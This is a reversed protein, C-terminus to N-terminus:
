CEDTISMSWLGEQNEPLFTYTTGPISTYDSLFLQTPRAGGGGQQAPYLNRSLGPNLALVDQESAGVTLGNEDSAIGLIEYPHISGDREDISGATLGWRDFTDGYHILTLEGWRVVNAACYGAIGPPIPIVETPDGIAPKLRAQAETIPTGFPISDVVAGADDLVDLGQRTVIIKGRITAPDVDSGVPQTFQQETEIDFVIFQNVEVTANVVVVTAPNWQQWTQGVLTVQGSDTAVPLQSPLPAPETLPNGCSCRVRPVGFNDVLVATGAQLVSQRPTAVGNAFGHNTVRTDTRLLVPTLGAVYDRIGDPSIGLAGAWAAAKDPNEDLFTVLAAADCATNDQTGGYLGPQSGAVALGGEAAGGPASVSTLVAVEETAVSTTFPDAGATGLPELVLEQTDGSATGSDDDRTVVLAVGVGIVVAVFAAVAVMWWPVRRPSGSPGSPAPAVPPADGPPQEPPYWRGDSARWWGPGQSTDSM